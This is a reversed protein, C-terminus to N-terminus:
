IGHILLLPVKRKVDLDQIDENWDTVQISHLGSMGIVGGLQGGDFKLLTALAAQCGQSLGAVFIKKTDGGLLLAEELILQSVRAASDLLTSQDFNSYPAKLDTEKYTKYVDCWANMEQGRNVSVARTPAKPLVVRCNDPAM